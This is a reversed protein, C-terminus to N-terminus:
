CCSVSHRFVPTSPQSPASTTAPSGPPSPALSSCAIWSVLYITWWNLDGVLLMGGAWGLGRSGPGKEGHPMRERWEMWILAERTGWVVIGFHWPVSLLVTVGSLGKGLALLRGSGPTLGLKATWDILSPSLLQSSDLLLSFYLLLPSSLIFILVILVPLLIVGLPTYVYLCRSLTQLTNRLPSHNPTTPHSPSVM